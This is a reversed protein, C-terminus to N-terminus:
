EAHHRGRSRLSRRTAGERQEGDPQPDPGGLGSVWDVYDEDRASEEATARNRGRPERRPQPKGPTAGAPEEATEASRNRRFLGLRPRGTTRDSRGAADAAAAEGAPEPQVAPDAEATDAPLRSTAGFPEWGAEERRAPGAPRSRGAAPGAARATRPPTTTSAPDAAGPVSAPDAATRPPAAPDAASPQAAPGSASGTLPQAAAGSARSLQAQGTARPQDTSSPWFDETTPAKFDRDNPGSGAPLTDATGREPQQRIPNVVEPQRPRAAEHRAAEARPASAEKPRPPAAPPPLAAAPPPAAPQGAPTLASPQDHDETTVQEHDAPILPWRLVAALGSGLVGAGAAILAGWYPAAQYNDASSGSGAILYALALMAPGPAGTAVVWAIPQGQWRALAGTLAGAVLALAPMTIVALRQATGSGLWAADLAGLRVAPLPDDPGLSPMVSLLALLWVGGTVAAVNWSILRHSLAALAALTGFVAGLGAALGALLVPNDGSALQAGRAPLMCLPAVVAAGLAAAGALALRGGLGLPQVPRQVLRDALMAGVVAALMAFWSVWALQATWQNQTAADFTRTFRVIGFGYAFGLQGAGALLGVGLAALLV